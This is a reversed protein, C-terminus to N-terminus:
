SAKPIKKVYKIAVMFVVAIAALGVLAAAYGNVKTTVTALAADFPDTAQAFAVPALTAAVLASGVRAAKSRLVAFRRNMDFEM